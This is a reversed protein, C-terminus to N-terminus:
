FMSQMRLESFDCLTGKKRLEVVINGSVEDAMDDQSTKIAELRILITVHPIIM